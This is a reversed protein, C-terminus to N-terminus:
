LNKIGDLMKLFREHLSTSGELRLGSVNKAIFLDFDSLASAKLPANADGLRTNESPTRMHDACRGLSDIPTHIEETARKIQPLRKEATKEAEKERLTDGM